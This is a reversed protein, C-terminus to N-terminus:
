SCGSEDALRSTSVGYKGPSPKDSFRYLAGLVDLMEGRLFGLGQDAITKPIGLPADAVSGAIAAIADSDGGISIANRISSPAVGPRALYIAAAAAGNMGETYNHIVM